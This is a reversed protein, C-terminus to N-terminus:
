LEKVAAKFQNGRDEYNKFLDFSACAPSLLVTDGKKGIHYAMNVAETATFTNVILEVSDEFADHIRKNDKGLCIIAKVKQKVLASLMSYDNGKDVGGVIWVVPGTMSELAYWVSNVNTAKSDNIFEIGQVKAVHELRHAINKFDSMSQRIIDNRMDLVRSAIGSAMSNYLNHKGQLALESISMNFTQNDLKIILEENEIWGGLTPKQFISIPYQNALINKTPLNNMTEADDLSYIFADGIQQNNIIKFKSDAYNQMSFQYRDLHDPTINLLVATNARFRVMDDLQFSSVEVVYHSFNETAVQLAFSKGINGALGINLGGKKLIHHTLLATTTKGNSGTIATIHAGTYRSAFELEGLLPTGKKKLALILDTTNPIGPSKIVEDAAMIRAVTHEGKEFEIENTLLLQEYVAGLQGKDSLFVDYGQKKALIAAGTGSEGGGLIVLKRAM